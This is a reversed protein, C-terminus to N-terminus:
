VKINVFQLHYQMYANSIIIESICDDSSRVLVETDLKQYVINYTYDIYPENNIEEPKVDKILNFIYEPKLFDANVNAFVEKKTSENYEKNEPLVCKGTEKDKNITGDCEYKYTKDTMSDFINYIYEYNNKLLNGKQTEYDIKEKEKKPETTPIPLEIDSEKEFWKDPAFFIIFILCGIILLAYIILGIIRKKTM